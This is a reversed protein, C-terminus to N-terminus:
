ARELLSESLHDAMEELAAAEDAHLVGQEVAQHIKGLADSRATAALHRAQLQRLVGPHERRLSELFASAGAQEDDVEGLIPVDPLTKRVSKQAEAFGWAIEASLNM